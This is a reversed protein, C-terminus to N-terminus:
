SGGQRIGGPWGWRSSLKVRRTEGTSILQIPARARGAIAFPKRDLAELSVLTWARPLGDDPTEVPPRAHGQTAKM